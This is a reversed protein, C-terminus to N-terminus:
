SGTGQGAVYAVATGYATIASLLPEPVPTPARHSTRGEALMKLDFSSWDYNRSTQHGGDSLKGSKLVRQGTLAIRDLTGNLWTIEAWQPRFVQEGYQHTMDPLVGPRIAFRAIHSVTTKTDGDAERDVRTTTTSRLFTIGDNTTDLDTPTM